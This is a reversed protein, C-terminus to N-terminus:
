KEVQSGCSGPRNWRMKFAASHDAV